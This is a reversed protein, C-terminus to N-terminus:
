KDNVEVNYNISKITMPQPGDQIISVQEITDPTGGVVVEVDGSFLPPTENMNNNFSRASIPIVSDKYLAKGGNTDLFRVNIRTLRAIKHQTTGLIGQLATIELPMSKQTSTYSLGVHVISGANDLTIEGNSDVIQDPITAGDSCISVTAGILHNLGSITKVALAWQTSTLTTSSFPELISATVNQTDVFATILARGTGTGVEHIEKGVDGSSFYAQSSQFNISLEETMKLQGDETVLLEGSETAIAYLGSSSDLTLSVSSAGNYTLFSDVFVRNLNDVDYNPEQIEVFRKTVGNITRKVIVYVEDNDDLSNVIACSEFNGQTVYRSWALVEQDQESTLRAIEGNTKIAWLSSLPDQQYDIEKIGGQIIHEADVTLDLANYKDSQISFNIGRAKNDGKQMYIVSSGVLEPQINSCGYSIHKKVDIDSPTIVSGNASSTARFVGNSTGIFLVDDSHLWRIPDGKNAAIKVLFSENDETGAEFNEYDANSTSFFLKQPSNPTGGLVLRQEHFTISTPHSRADSFEGENWQFRASAHLSSPIDNQFVVSVVTNSTFGTIKLFAEDNGDEVRWLGGVHDSSFPTHGGTATLTGSDGEDWSSATITVFNGTETNEEAFPGRQFDVDNLTFSNASTRVLKQVPHNPHALYMVDSDQIFKIDFIEAELYPSSIELHNSSGDLVIGQNSYFRMYQDGLEIVYTQSTSYEFPILRSEKTSDKTEAVFKFGKRRFIPGQPRVIFNELTISGNFYRTFQTRADVLSSLEGATFNTRVESARPM